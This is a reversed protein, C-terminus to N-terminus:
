TAFYIQCSVRPSLLTQAQGGREEVTRRSGARHLLHAQSGPKPHRSTLTLIPEAQFDRFSTGFGEHDKTNNDNDGQVRVWIQAVGRWMNGVPQQVAGRCEGVRRPLKPLTHTHKFCKMREQLCKAGTGRLHNASVSIGYM